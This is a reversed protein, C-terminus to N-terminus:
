IRMLTQSGSILGDGYRVSTHYALHENFFHPQFTHETTMWFNNLQDSATTV